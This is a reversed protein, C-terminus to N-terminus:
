KEAEELAKRKLYEIAEDESLKELQRIFCSIAINTLISQNLKIIESEKNFVAMILNTDEAIAKKFKIQRKIIKRDKSYQTKPLDIKKSKKKFVM